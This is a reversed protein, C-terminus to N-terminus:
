IQEKYLEHKISNKGNNKVQYMLSDAKELMKDVSNPLKGFTAAGTSFSVDFPKEKVKIM